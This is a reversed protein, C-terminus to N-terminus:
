RPEFNVPLWVWFGTKGPRSTVDITGRRRRVVIHRSIHLGLGASIAHATNDVMNTWEQNLQSGFAHIRSHDQLYQRRVRM